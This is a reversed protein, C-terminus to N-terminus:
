GGFSHFIQPFLKHLPTFWFELIQAETEFHRHVDPVTLRADAANVGGSTYLTRANVTRVVM